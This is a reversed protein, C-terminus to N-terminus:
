KRGSHQAYDYFWSAAHSRQGGVLRSLGLTFESPALRARHIWWPASARSAPFFPRRRVVASMDHNKLVVDVKASVNFENVVSVKQLVGTVRTKQM